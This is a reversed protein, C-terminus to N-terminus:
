STSASVVGSWARKHSPSKRMLTEKSAFLARAIGAPSSDIAEPGGKHKRAM